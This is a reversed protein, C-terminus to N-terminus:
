KVAGLIADLLIRQFAAGVDEVMNAVEVDGRATAEIRVSGDPVKVPPNVFEFPQVNPGFGFTDEVTVVLVGRTDVACSLVNVDVADLTFRGAFGHFKEAKTRPRDSISLTKLETEIGGPEPKEAIPKGSPALVQGM